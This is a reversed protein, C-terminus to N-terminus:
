KRNAISDLDAFHWWEIGRIGIHM